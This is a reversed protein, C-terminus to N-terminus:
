LMLLQNWIPLLVLDLRSTPTLLALINILPRHPLHQLLTPESLFLTRSIGLKKRFPFSKGSRHGRRWDNLHFHLSPGCRRYRSTLFNRSVVFIVFAERWQVKMDMVAVHHGPTSRNRRRLRRDASCMKSTHLVSPVLAGIVAHRQSTKTQRLVRCRQSCDIRNRTPSTPCLVFTSAPADAHTSPSAARVRKTAMEFRTM